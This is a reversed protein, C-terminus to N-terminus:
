PGASALRRRQWWTMTLAGVLGGFGLAPISALLVDFVDPGVHRMRGPGAAGGAVSALVAFAVAAAIGGGCGRLGADLWTLAPHRRQFRMTAAAATLPPLWVMAALWPASMGADPLASLLAFLPLPGLVVADPSVLTNGGVAFGPGLLFSGSFLTANPVFGANALAYVTGEAATLHLQSVMTAAEGVGAALSILFVLAALALFATLIAGATAAAQRVVAPVFTAWIAARGAGIAIAPAAFLLSMALSWLIVPPVSPATAVTSALSATVVAVVAYGVFFTGTAVPVTLDREGDSIRDADPGHGSLADGVRHAVRWMSWACIATLGLPVVGVAVGQVTIGSGHAMLWALAGMRMGDRPAGHAGADSAFWGVVGVAVCVLLPALAAVAGGLTAILVLPRQAASAAGTRDRRDVLLSTM